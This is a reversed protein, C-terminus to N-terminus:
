RTPTNRCPPSTWFPRALTWKGPRATVVISIASLDALNNASLINAIQRVGDTSPDLVFAQEGPQLGSLLDEIDRVRPDIFVIKDTTTV